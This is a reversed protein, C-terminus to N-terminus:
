KGKAQFNGVSRKGEFGCQCKVLAKLHWKMVFKGDGHVAPEIEFVYVKVPQDCKPCEVFTRTGGLTPKFTTHM